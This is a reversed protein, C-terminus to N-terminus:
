NLLQRILNKKDIEEEVVDMIRHTDALSQLSNQYLNLKEGYVVTFGDQKKLEDRINSIM